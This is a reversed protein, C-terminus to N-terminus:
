ANRAGQKRLRKQRRRELEEEAEITMKQGWRRGKNYSHPRKDIKHCADIWDLLQEDSMSQINIGILRKQSKSLSLDEEESESPREPVIREPETLPEGVRGKAKEPQNRIATWYEESVDPDILVRAGGWPYRDQGDKKPASIWYEEGTEVDVHSGCLRAGYQLKKGRWYVMKGSKSFTVRSIWAPGNDDHGGSHTKLEIYMIQSKM